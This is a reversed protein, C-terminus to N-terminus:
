FMLSSSGFEQSALCTIPRLNAIVSSSRIFDHRSTQFKEFPTESDELRAELTRLSEAHFLQYAM